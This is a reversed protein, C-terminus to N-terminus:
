CWHVAANAGALHLGWQETNSQLVPVFCGQTVPIAGIFIQQEPLGAVPECCGQTVVVAGTFIQQESLHATVWCWHVATNTGALHVGCQETSSQLVPECCGQTVANAGIFIQQESLHAVPECCGQIVAVAGTLIQQESLHATAWCWHASASSLALSSHRTRVRQELAPRCGLQLCGKRDKCNCRHPKAGWVGKNDSLVPAVSGLIKHM